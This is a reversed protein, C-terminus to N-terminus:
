AALQQQSYALTEIAYIREELNTLPLEIMFEGIGYHKQLEGLQRSISESTGVLVKTRHKEIEYSGRNALQAFNEAARETSLSYTVGDAFHLKYIYLNEAREIAEKETRGVSATLALLPVGGRTAKNYVSITNKLNVDSGNLHGAYSFQWGLKAAMKASEESGGLLFPRPKIETQPTAALGSFPGNKIAKGGLLENLLVAKDGFSLRNEQAIEIQLAATANPLGGPMKGIGLDVRGPALAALVNFVEAVKYPSYHQLMVGGSGIRINKTAALLYAVLVEPASSAFDQSNHHEAVWYRRFGAAEAAQAVTVTKALAQSATGGDLPSKDLFSLDYAM